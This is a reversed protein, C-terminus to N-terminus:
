VHQLTQRLAFSFHISHHSRCALTFLSYGQKSVNASGMNRRCLYQCFRDILASPKQDSVSFVRLDIRSQATPVYIIPHRNKNWLRKWSRDCMDVCWYPRKTQSQTTEIPKFGLPVAGMRHASCLHRFDIALSPIQASNLKQEAVRLNITCDPM